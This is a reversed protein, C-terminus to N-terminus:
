STARRGGAARQGRESREEPTLSAWHQKQIASVKEPSARTKRAHRALDANDVADRGYRIWLQDDREYEIFRGRRIFVRLSALVIQRAGVRVLRDSPKRKVPPAYGKNILGRNRHREAQRYARGPPVAAMTEQVLWEKLRPEAKVLAIM